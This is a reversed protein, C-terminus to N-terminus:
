EEFDDSSDRTHIIASLIVLLSGIVLPAVVFLPHWPDCADCRTKAAITVHIYAGYGVLSVGLGAMLATLAIILRKSASSDVM